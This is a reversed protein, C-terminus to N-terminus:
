EDGDVKAAEASTVDLLRRQAQLCDHAFNSAVGYAWDPHAANWEAMRVAWTRGDQAPEAGFLALQIHKESLERHRAGVGTVARVRRYLVAVEKPSLAPDVTLEIRALAPLSRAARSGRASARAALILPPIDTLTYVVAQAETWTYRRVLDLSLRKLAVAPTNPLIRRFRERAEGPVLYTLYERGWGRMDGAGQEVLWPEVEDWALPSRGALQETRFRVVALLQRAIGAVLLSIAEERSSHDAGRHTHEALM